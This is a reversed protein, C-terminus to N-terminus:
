WPPVSATPVLWGLGELTGGKPRYECGIWGDYGAADLMDFLYPYNIEGVDPEHRGPVGSVALSGEMIQRHYFDYQLFLNKSGVTEIVRKAHGATSLLYGPVDITNLPEILARIGERGFADAAYALNAVYTEEYARSDAGDPVVAAM